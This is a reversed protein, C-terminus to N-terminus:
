RLNETIQNLYEHILFHVFFKVKINEIKANSKKRPQNKM